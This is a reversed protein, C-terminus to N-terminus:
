DIEAAPASRREQGLIPRSVVLEAEGRVCVEGQARIECLARTRDADVQECWGELELPEYLPTPRRYRVSLSRTVGRM